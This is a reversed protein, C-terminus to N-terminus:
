RAECPREIHDAPRVYPTVEPIDSAPVLDSYENGLVLDVSMGKRGEVRQLEAGEVHDALRKAAKQGDPGYRIVAAEEPLFAGSPDNGTEGTRFGRSRLDAAVDAALGERFTTNYVSVRIESPAPPPPEPEDKLDKYGYGLVVQVDKGGRGDSWMKSGPIQQQVLLANDRSDPGYYITAASKVYVRDDANGIDAIVFGREELTRGVDRALGATSNSNQLDIEFSDRQPAEVREPICVPEPAGILNASYAAAVTATGLLLGPLTVFLIARRRRRRALVRRTDDDLEDVRLVEYGAAPRSTWRGDGDAMELEERGTM